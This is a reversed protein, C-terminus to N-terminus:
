KLWQSRCAVWDVLPSTSLYPSWSFNREPKREIEDVRHFFGLLAMATQQDGITKPVAPKLFRHDAEQRPWGGSIAQNEVLRKTETATQLTSM